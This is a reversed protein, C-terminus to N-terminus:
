EAKKRRLLKIAAGLRRPLLKIKPAPQQATQDALQAAEAEKRRRTETKVRNKALMAETRATWVEKVVAKSARRCRDGVRIHGPRCPGIHVPSTASQPMAVAPLGQRKRLAANAQQLQLLQIRAEGSRVGAEHAQLFVVRLSLKRVSERLARNSVSVKNFEKALTNLQAQAVKWTEESQGKAAVAAPDTAWTANLGLLAAGLVSVAPAWGKLAKSWATARQLLSMDDAEKIQPLEATAEAEIPPVAVAEEVEVNTEETEDSM